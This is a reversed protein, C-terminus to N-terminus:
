PQQHVVHFHVQRKQWHVGLAFGPVTYVEYGDRRLKGLASFRVLEEATAPRLATRFSEVEGEAFSFTGGGTNSDLDHSESIDFASAPLEKPLWGRTIAGDERAERATAYRAHMTSDVATFVLWCAGILSLLGLWKVVVWTYYFGREIQGRAADSSGAERSTKVPPTIMPM